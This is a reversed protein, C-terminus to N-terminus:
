RETLRWERSAVEGHTYGWGESKGETECERGRGQKKKKKYILKREIEQDRELGGDKSGNEPSRHPTNSMQEAEGHRGRKVKGETSERM